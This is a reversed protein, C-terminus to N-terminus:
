LDHQLYVLRDYGGIYHESNDNKVLIMQPVTNVTENLTECHSKAQDITFRSPILREEYVLGILDLLEKARDCYGCGKQTYIIMKKNM